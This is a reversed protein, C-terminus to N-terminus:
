SRRKGNTAAGGAIAAVALGTGLVIATALVPHMEAKTYPSWEKADSRTGSRERLGTTPRELADDRRNPPRGSKQKRFYLAEMLWDLTRPILGGELSHLKASGSAFMDREPTEACHLIVEAVVEPAYVPEPLKPEQEMYNKAHQPFPTDTAGPKVLSVSIPAGIKELEMRLVDTFGKVAHKSASYMGLLPSARDSVESGINIIAGGFPGQRGRLRRAAELSGYVVGWFNTEFLRRSDAVPVDLLMGYIGVGADNIWTDFGGFHGVATSAITRVDDENGVDAAVYVAQGGGQNIEDTLQRLADENRAALVLKAGRRAAMRATALGIGSSAGTIVIVQDALKKLPVAM